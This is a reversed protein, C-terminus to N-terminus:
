MSRMRRYRRIDPLLSLFVILGLALLVVLIVILAIM